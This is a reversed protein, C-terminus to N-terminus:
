QLLYAFVLIIAVNRILDKIKDKRIINNKILALINTKTM